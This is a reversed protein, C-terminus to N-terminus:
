QGETIKLIVLPARVKDVVIDPIGVKLVQANDDVVIELKPLLDIIKKFLTNHIVNFSDRRRKTAYVVTTELSAYDLKQWHCHNEREWEMRAAAIAWAATNTGTSSLGIKMGLPVFRSANSGLERPLEVPIEITLERRAPSAIAVQVM